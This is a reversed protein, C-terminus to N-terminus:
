VTNGRRVPYIQLELRGNSERAVEGGWAVMANQFAHNSPLFLWVELESTQATAPRCPRARREGSGAHCGRDIVHKGGQGNQRGGADERAVPQITYRAMQVV